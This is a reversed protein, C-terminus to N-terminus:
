KVDSPAPPSTFLEITGPCMGEAKASVQFLFVNKYNVRHPSAGRFTKLSACSSRFLVAPQQTRNFRGFKRKAGLFM